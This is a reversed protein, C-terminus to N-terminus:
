LPFVSLTGNSFSTKFRTMNKTAPGNQVKGEISFRSGHCPCKFDNKAERYRVNCKKHPCIASFVVYENEAKRVVVLSTEQDGVKVDKLLKSGGVTQLEEVESITIELAGSSKRAFGLFTAAFPLMSAFRLFSRRNM